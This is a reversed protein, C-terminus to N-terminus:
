EGATVPDAVPVDAKSRAAGRRGASAAAQVLLGLVESREEAPLNKVIELNSELARASRIWALRANHLAASETTTEPHALQYELTAKRAAVPGLDDGAEIWAHVEDLATRGDVTAITKLLARDGKTLATRVTAAHGAEGQWSVNIQALGAPHLRGHLSILAATTDPADCLEILAEFLNFTGRYKRDHRDDLATGDERLRAIQAEVARTDDGGLAACLAAHSEAVDPLLAATKPHRKLIAHAPTDGLWQGSITRMSTASLRTYNSMTRRTNGERHGVSHRRGALLM